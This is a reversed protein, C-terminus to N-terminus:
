AVKSVRLILGVEHEDIAINQGVGGESLTHYIVLEEGQEFDIPEDFMYPEKFDATSYNGIVSQGEGVRDGVMATGVAGGYLLLGNKDEDFLVKRERVFKLYKTISDDTGDNELPQFDSALIGLLTILHRSPVVAGFPFNLFEGPNKTTNLENDGANVISAGCNGYNIFLYSDSDAGNEMDATIDGADYKDYLVVVVSGAKHVGDITLSHGEPIPFGTFLEKKELYNLITRYGPLFGADYQMMREYLTDAAAGGISKVLIDANEVDSWDAFSTQDGVTTSGTLLDHSHKVTGGLFGFHSGLTGGVRGYLVSTKSIKVTMYDTNPNYVRIDRVLISTDAKAELEFQTDGLVTKLMNRERIAM